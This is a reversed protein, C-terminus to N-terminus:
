EEYNISDVVYKTGASTDSANKGKITKKDWTGVFSTTGYKSKYVSHVAAKGADRLERLDRINASKVGNVLFSGISVAAGIKPIFALLFSSVNSIVGSEISEAYKTIRKNPLYVHKENQSFEKTITRGEVVILKNQYKSAVVKKCDDVFSMTSIEGGRLNGQLANQILEKKEFSVVGEDSIDEAYIPIEEIMAIMTDGPLESVKIGEDPTFVIECQKESEDLGDAAYITMTVQTMLALVVLIVVTKIGYRKLKTVM